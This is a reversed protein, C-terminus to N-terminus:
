WLNEAGHAILGKRERRQLFGLGKGSFVAAVGENKTIHGDIFHNRFPIVVM